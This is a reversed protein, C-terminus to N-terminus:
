DASRGYIDLDLKLGREAMRFLTEPQIDIGENETELFLGCFIVGRFRGAFSQWTAADGTARDLLSNIQHDLNGPSSTKANLRWSGTHAVKEKGLPTLWTGGKRVGVTPECKLRETIEDPDLDDGYFGLSVETRYLEGM